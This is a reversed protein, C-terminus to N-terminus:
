NTSEFYLHLRFDGPFVDLKLREQIDRVLRAKQREIEAIPPCESASGLYCENGVVYGLLAKNDFHRSGMACANDRLVIVSLKVKDM